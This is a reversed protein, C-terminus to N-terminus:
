YKVTFDAPIRNQPVDFSFSPSCLNFKIRYRQHYGTTIVDLFLSLPRYDFREDSFIRYWEFDDGAVSTETITANTRTNMQKKASVFFFNIIIM